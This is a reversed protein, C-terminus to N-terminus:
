HPSGGVRSLGLSGAEIREPPTRWSLIKQVEASGATVRADAVQSPLASAEMSLASGTVAFILSREGGDSSRLVWKWLQGDYSGSSVCQAQGQVSWVM